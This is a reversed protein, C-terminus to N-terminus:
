RMGLMGTPFTIVHSAEAENVAECKIEKFVIALM